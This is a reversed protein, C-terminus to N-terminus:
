QSRAYRPPVRNAEQEAASSKVDTTLTPLFANGVRAQNRWYKLPCKMLFSEYGAEGTRPLSVQCWHKKDNANNFSQRFGRCQDHFDKWLSQNELMKFKTL